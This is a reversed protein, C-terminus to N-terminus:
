PRIIRFSARKLITSTAPWEYCSNRQGELDQIARTKHFKDVLDPTSVLSPTALNLSAAFYQLIACSDTKLCSEAFLLCRIKTRYQERDGM